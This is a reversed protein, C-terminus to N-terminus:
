PLAYAAKGTCSLFFLLVHNTIRHYAVVSVVRAALMRAATMRKVSAQSMTPM